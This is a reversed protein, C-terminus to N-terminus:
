IVEAIQIIAKEQNSYELYKIVTPNLMTKMTNMVMEWLLITSLEGTCTINQHATKMSNPHGLLFRM